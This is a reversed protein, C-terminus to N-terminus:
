RFQLIVQLSHVKPRQLKKWMKVIDEYLASEEPSTEESATEQEETSAITVPIDHEEADVDSESSQIAADSVKLLRVADIHVTTGGSSKVYFGVNITGNTVLVNQFRCVIGAVERRRCIRIFRMVVM